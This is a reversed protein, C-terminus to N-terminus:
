RPVCSLPLSLRAFIMPRSLSTQALSTLNSSPWVNRFTQGFDLFAEDNYSSSSLARFAADAKGLHHILCSRVARRNRAM